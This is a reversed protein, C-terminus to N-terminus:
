SPVFYTIVPFTRTLRLSISFISKADFNNLFRIQTLPEFTWFEKPCFHKCYFQFNGNEFWLSKSGLTLIFFRAAGNWRHVSDFKSESNQSKVMIQQLLLEWWAVNWMVKWPNNDSKILLGKWLASKRILLQNQAGLISIRKWKSLFGRVIRPKFCRSGNTFSVILTLSVLDSM